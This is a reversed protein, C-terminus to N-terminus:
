RRQYRADFAARYVCALESLSLLGYVVFGTTWQGTHSTSIAQITAVQGWLVCGIGSGLMRMLPSKPWRGNIYLVVCRSIGVICFAVALRTETIESRLYEGFIPSITFAEGPQALVVAWGVMILASLWETSRDAHANLFRLPM